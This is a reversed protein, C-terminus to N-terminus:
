SSNYNNIWEVSSKASQKKSSPLDKWSCIAYSWLPPTTRAVGEIPNGLCGHHCIFTIIFIVSARGCIDINPHTPQCTSMYSAIDVM